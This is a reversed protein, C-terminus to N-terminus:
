QVRHCEGTSYHEVAVDTTQRWRTSCRGDQQFPLEFFYDITASSNRAKWWIQYVGNTAWARCDMVSGGDILRKWDMFDCLMGRMDLMAAGQVDVEDIPIVVPASSMYERVDACAEFAMDCTREVVRDLVMVLSGVIRNQAHSPAVITPTVLVALLATQVIRMRGGLFGLAM